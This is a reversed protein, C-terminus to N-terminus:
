RCSNLDDDWGVVFSEEQRSKKRSQRALLTHAELHRNNIVARSVGGTLYCTGMSGSDQTKIPTAAIIRLGTGEARPTGLWSNLCNYEHICIDVKHRLICQRLQNTQSSAVWTIKDTHLGKV